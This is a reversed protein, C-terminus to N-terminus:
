VTYSSSLSLLVQEYKLGEMKLHHKGITYVCSGLMSPKLQGQHCLYFDKKSCYQDYVAMCQRDQYCVNLADGLHEFTSGNKYFECNKNEAITFKPIDGIEGILTIFIIKDIAQM